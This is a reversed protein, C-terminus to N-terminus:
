NLLDNLAKQFDYRHFNYCRICDLRPQGSQMELDNLLKYYETPKEAPIVPRVAPRIPESSAPQIPESNAPRPVAALAGSQGRDAAEEVTVPQV